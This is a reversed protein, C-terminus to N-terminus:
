FIGKFKTGKIAIGGGKTFAQIKGTPKDIGPKAGQLEGLNKATKNKGKSNNKNELYEKIREDSISASNDYPKASDMVEKIKGYREKKDVYVKSPPISDMAEKIKEYREKKNLVKGM